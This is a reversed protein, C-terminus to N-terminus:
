QDAERLIGAEYKIIGRRILISELENKWEQYQHLTSNDIVDINNDIKDIKTFVNNLDRKLVDIDAVLTKNYIIFSVLATILTAIVTYLFWLQEYWKKKENM